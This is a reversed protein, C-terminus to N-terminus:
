VNIYDFGPCEIAITGKPKVKGHFFDIEDM